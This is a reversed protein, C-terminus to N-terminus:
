WAPNVKPALRQPMMENYITRRTFLWGDPTRVLEDEYHGYAGVYPWRNRNDNDCEFWYALTTATDGNLRILKNTVFHRLRPSHDLGEATGRAGFYRLMEAATARIEARGTVVGGAWDLVGDETFMSAMAEADQWDLAFLYRAHLEDIATRDLLERLAAENM